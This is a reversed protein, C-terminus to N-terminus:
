CQSHRKRWWEVTESLRTSVSSTPAFGVEKQLREVSAVLAHPDGPPQQRAGFRILDPRGLEDGISTLLSRVSRAEGSAVNVSGSVASDTLAVFGQAIDVTSAYDRLQEGSTALFEEGRLLNNIASSVLRGDGEFPGFLFFIRGWAFNAGRKECLEGVADRCALKSRGYLTSPLEPTNGERLTSPGNEWSYEACTGAGVVRSGGSALFSEVLHITSEVWQTNEASNWFVGHRTDWALHLLHSAKIQGLLASVAAHNHLNVAHTTVGPPAERESRNSSSSVIHVRYGKRLFADITQRGLFGNGGTVIVSRTGM